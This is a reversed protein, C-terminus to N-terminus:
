WHPFPLVEFDCDPILLFSSGDIAFTMVVAYIAAFIIPLHPSLTFFIFPMYSTSMLVAIVVSGKGDNPYVLIYFSAVIILSM